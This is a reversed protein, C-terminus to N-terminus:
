GPIVFSAEYSYGYPTPTLPNKIKVFYHLLVYCVLQFRKTFYKRFGIWM